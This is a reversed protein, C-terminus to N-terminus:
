WCSKPCRVKRDRLKGTQAMPTVQLSVTYVLSNNHCAGFIRSTDGRPGSTLSACHASCNPDRLEHLGPAETVQRVHTRTGRSYLKCWQPSYKSEGLGCPCAHAPSVPKSQAALLTTLFSLLSLPVILLPSSSSPLCKMYKKNQFLKLNVSVSCVTWPTEAYGEGLIGWSCRVGDPTNTM